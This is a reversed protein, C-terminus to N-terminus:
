TSTKSAPFYSRSSRPVVSFIASRNERCSKELHGRAHHSDSPAFFCWANGSPAKESARASTTPFRLPCFVARMTRYWALVHNWDDSQSGGVRKLTENWDDAVVATAKDGVTNKASM